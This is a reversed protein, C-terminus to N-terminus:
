PDAVAATQLNLIGTCACPMVKQMGGIQHSCSVVLMLRASPDPKNSPSCSPRSTVLSNHFMEVPATNRRLYRARHIIHLTARRSEDLCLLVLFAGSFEDAAGQDNHENNHSNNHHHGYLRPLLLAQKHAM